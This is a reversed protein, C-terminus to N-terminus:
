YGGLGESPRIVPRLLVYPVLLAFSMLAKLAIDIAMCSLRAIGTAERQGVDDAIESGRFCVFMRRPECLEATTPKVVQDVFPLEGSPVAVTQLGSSPKAPGASRTQFREHDDISARAVLV